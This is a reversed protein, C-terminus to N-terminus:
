TTWKVTAKILGESDVVPVDPKTPQKGGPFSLVRAGYLHLADIQDRRYKEVPQSRFNTFQSAFTTYTRHGALIDVGTPMATTSVVTFGALRAVVGNATAGAEGLAAANAIDPARLLYRKAKPSVVVYRDAPVKGTDLKEMMDFIAELLAEGKAVSASLGSVDVQPLATASAAITSGVFADTSAALARISELSAPSALAGAVQVTEIDRVYFAVYDAQSIDLYQEITKLDEITMGAVDNYRGVNPRILGNIVVRDGQATIDGEYDHNVVLPSAWVLLPDFQTLLENSWETPVFTHTGAHAYAPVPTIAM